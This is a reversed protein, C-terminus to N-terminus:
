TVLKDTMSLLSQLWNKRTISKLNQKCTYEYNDLQPPVLKVDNKTGVTLYGISM